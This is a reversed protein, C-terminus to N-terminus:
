LDHPNRESFGPMPPEVIDIPQKALSWLIAAVFWLAFAADALIIGLWAQEQGSM